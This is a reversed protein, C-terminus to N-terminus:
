NDSCSFSKPRDGIYGPLVSAAPSRALEVAQDVMAKSSHRVKVIPLSPQQRLWDAWVFEAFEKQRMMSRCYGGAKRLRWALSRYPDDPMAALSPPLESPSISRGDQDALRVLRDTVLGRWFEEPTAFAPRPVIICLADPHSAMALASAGHHHDTIFLGDGPGRVVKIPDDELERWAKKPKDEIKEAKHKVEDLGIAGQLPHLTRVDCTCTAGASTRASCPQNEARAMSVSAALLVGLLVIARMPSLKSESAM